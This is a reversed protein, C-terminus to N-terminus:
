RATEPEPTSIASARRRCFGASELAYAVVAAVAERSTCCVRNAAGAAVVRVMLLWLHHCLVWGGARANHDETSPEGSQPCRLCQLVSLNIDHQDILVVVVGELRQQILHRGIQELGRRDPM